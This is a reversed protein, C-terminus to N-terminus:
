PSPAQNWGRIFQEWEGPAGSRTLLAKLKGKEPPTEEEKQDPPFDPRVRRVLSWVAWARIRRLEEREGRYRTAQHFFSVRPNGLFDSGDHHLLIWSIAPYPLWVLDERRDIRAYLARALALISRATNHQLWLFQGYACAMRAFAPGRDPGFERLSRWNMEEPAPPLYPCPDRSPKMEFPIACSSPSQFLFRFDFRGTVM